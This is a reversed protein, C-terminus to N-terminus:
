EVVRGHKLHNIKNELMTTEQTETSWRRVRPHRRHKGRLRSPAGVARLKSLLMQLSFPRRVHSFRVVLFRGGALVKGLSLQQCTPFLPLLPTLLPQNLTLKGNVMM